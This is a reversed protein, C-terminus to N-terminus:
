LRKLLRLDGNILALKKSRMWGKIQVERKLAVSKGSCQESYLLKVAGFSKTFHGGKGQRHEEFRRGINDTIGTYLKGDECKLVYVYWM